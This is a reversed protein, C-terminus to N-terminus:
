VSAGPSTTVKSVGPPPPKPFGFPQARHFAVADADVDAAGKRVEHHEVRLRSAQEVVLHEGRRVIGRARHQGAHAPQHLRVAHRGGVHRVHDVAGREDGVRQDLALAHLGREDGRLTEAVHHFDAELPAVVGVVQFDFQRWGERRAIPAELHILADPRVARDLPRQVLCRHKGDSPLQLRL